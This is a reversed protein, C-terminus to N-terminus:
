RPRPRGSLQRGPRESQLHSHRPLRSAGRLALSAPSSGDDWIADIDEERIGRMAIRARQHDLVPVRYKEAVDAIRRLIEPTVLGCPLHPAIGYTERDRQLVAGKEGDNLM